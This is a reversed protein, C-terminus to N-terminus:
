LAIDDGAVAHCWAAYRVASEASCGQLVASLYRELLSGQGQNRFACAAKRYAGAHCRTAADRALASHDPHCAAPEVRGLFASIEEMVLEVSM